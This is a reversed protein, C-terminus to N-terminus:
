RFRFYLLTAHDSVRGGLGYTDCPEANRARFLATGINWIIAIWCLLVHFFFVSLPLSLACNSSIVFALASHFSVFCPALFCIYNPCFSRCSRSYLISCLDLHCSSSVTHYLTPHFLFFTHICLIDVRAHHTSYLIHTNYSHSQPTCIPYTRLSPIPPRHSIPYQLPSTDPIDFRLALIWLSSLFFHFLAM